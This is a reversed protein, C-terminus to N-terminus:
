PVGTGSSSQPALGVFVRPEPLFARAAPELFGSGPFVSVSRGEPLCPPHPGGQRFSRRLEGAHLGFAAEPCERSLPGPVIGALAGAVEGALVGSNGRCSARFAAGPFGRCKEPFRGPIRGSSAEPFVPIGGAVEGSNEGASLGFFSDEGPSEGSFGGSVRRRVGRFREALPRRWPEFVGSFPERCREPPVEAGSPLRRTRRMAWRGASAKRPSRRKGHGASADGM